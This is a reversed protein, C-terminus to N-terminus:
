LVFTPFVQAGDIGPYWQDDYDDFIMEYSRWHDNIFVRGLVWIYPSIYGYCCFSDTLVKSWTTRFTEFLTKESTWQKRRFQSTENFSNAVCHAVATGACDHNPMINATDAIRQVAAAITRHYTARRQPFREAYLRAAAWATLRFEGYLLVMDLYERSTFQEM